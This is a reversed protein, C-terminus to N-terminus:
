VLHTPDALVNGPNFPDFRGQATFDFAPSAVADDGLVSRLFAVHADEHAAIAEFAARRPSLPVGSANLLRYYEAELYELVLAFNLVETVTPPMAQGFVPRAVSALALPVSAALAKAGFRGAQVLARRRDVVAETLAHLHDEDLLGLISDSSTSM